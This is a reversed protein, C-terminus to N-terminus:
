FDLRQPLVRFVQVRVALLRELGALCCPSAAPTWAKDDLAARLVVGGQAAVIEVLDFDGFFGTQNTRNLCQQQGM